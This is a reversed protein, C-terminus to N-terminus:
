PGVADRGDPSQPGVPTAMALVQEDTVNMNHVDLGHQRVLPVLQEATGRMELGCVCTVIMETSM